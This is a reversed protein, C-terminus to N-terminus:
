TLPFHKTVGEKTSHAEIAKGKGDSLVIHGMRGPQPPYRLLIGGPTSAALAVDVRQGRKLSDSKWAGTYAETLAPHGTPDTCGYLLGGVQYALWSMFEACDWPGSWNADNKPVLVNRYEQGVRTLALEVLEAGSAM